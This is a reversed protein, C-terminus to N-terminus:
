VGVRARGLLVDHGKGPIVAAVCLLAGAGATGPALGAADVGPEAVHVRDGPLGYLELVTRRAWRSTTVVSAAASLM